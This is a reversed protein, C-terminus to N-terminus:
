VVSRNQYGLHSKFECKPAKLAGTEALQVVRAYEPPSRSIRVGPVKRDAEKAFLYSRGSQCSGLEKVEPPKLHVQVM